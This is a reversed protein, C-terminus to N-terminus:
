RSVGLVRRSPAWTKLGDVNAMVLVFFGLLVHTAVASLSGRESRETLGAGGHWWKQRESSLLFVLLSKIGCDKALKAVKRSFCDEFVSSVGLSGVSRQNRWLRSEPRIM